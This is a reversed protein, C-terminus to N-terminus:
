IERIKPINTLHHSAHHNLDECFGGLIECSACEWWRQPQLFVQSCNCFESQVRCTEILIEQFLYKQWNAKSDNGSQTTKCNQAPILTALRANFVLSLQPKFQMANSQMSYLLRFHCIYAVQLLEINLTHFEFSRLATCDKAIHYCHVAKFSCHVM